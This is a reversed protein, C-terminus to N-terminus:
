PGPLYRGFTGKGRCGGGGVRTLMRSMRHFHKGRRRRRKRKGEEHPAAAHTAAQRKLKGLAREDDGIDGEGCTVSVRRRCSVNYIEM